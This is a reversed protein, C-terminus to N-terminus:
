KNLFAKLQETIGEKAKMLKSYNRRSPHILCLINEHSKFNLIDSGRLAERAVAGLVIIKDACIIKSRLVNEYHERMAAPTPKLHGSKGKGPFTGTMAEFEFMTQAQDKTIGVWELMTYLLTTDYPVAQKVAPPAQGIILINM